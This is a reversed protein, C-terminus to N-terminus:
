RRRDGQRRSADDAGDNTAAYLSVHPYGSARVRDLVRAIAASGTERSAVVVVDPTPAAHLSDLVRSVSDLAADTLRVAAGSAQGPRDIAIRDGILRIAVPATMSDRGAVVAPAGPVAGLDVILVAALAAALPVFLYPAGRRSTRRALWRQRARLYVARVV